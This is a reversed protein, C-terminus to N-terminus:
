DVTFSFGSARQFRFTDNNAFSGGGVGTFVEINGNSSIAISSTKYSGNHYFELVHATQGAPRFNAPLLAVVNVPGAGSKTMSGPSYDILVTVTNGTRTAHGTIANNSGTTGTWSGSLQIEDYDDLSVGTKALYGIEAAIKSRFESIFGVQDFGTPGTSPAALSAVLGVQGAGNVVAYVYYRTYSGAFSGTDLGGFGSSNLDCEIDATLRYQQGGITIRVDKGDKQYPLKFRSSNISELDSIINEFYRQGM